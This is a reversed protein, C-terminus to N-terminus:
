AVAYCCHCTHKDLQCILGSLESVRKPYSGAATQEEAECPRDSQRWGGANTMLDYPDRTDEAGPHGFDVGSTAEFGSM